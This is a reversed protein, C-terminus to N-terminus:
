GWSVFDCQTMKSPLSFAKWGFSTKTKLSYTLNGSGNVTLVTPKEFKIYIYIYVCM